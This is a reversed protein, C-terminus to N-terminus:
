GKLMINLLDKMDSSHAQREVIVEAAVKKLVAIDADHKQQTPRMLYTVFPPRQTRAGSGLLLGLWPM